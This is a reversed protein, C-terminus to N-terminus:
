IFVRYFQTKITQGDNQIHKIYNGSHGAPPLLATNIVSCLELFEVTM